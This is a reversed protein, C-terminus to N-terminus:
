RERLEKEESDEASLGCVLGVLSGDLLIPPVQSIVRIVLKVNDVVKDRRM